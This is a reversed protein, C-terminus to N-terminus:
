CWPALLTLAMETIGTNRGLHITVEQEPLVIEHITPPLHANDARLGTYVPTRVRSPVWWTGQAWCLLVIISTVIRANQASGRLGTTNGTSRLATLMHQSQKDQLLERVARMESTTIEM